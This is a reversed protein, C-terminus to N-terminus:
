AAQKGLVAERCASCVTVTHESRCPLSLDKADIDFILDAGKWDKESMPMSPFSYYANSCYVDSPKEQMLLLHLEKIDKIAIHRTMGGNFKQYGFEREGIKPPVPILDHHNFYYEKIANEVLAADRELM